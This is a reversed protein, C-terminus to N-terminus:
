SNDIKRRFKYGIFEYLDSNSKGQKLSSLQVPKVARLDLTEEIEGPTKAKLEQETLKTSASIVKLFREQPVIIEGKDMNSKKGLLNVIVM